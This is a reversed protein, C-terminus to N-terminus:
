KSGSYVLRQKEVLKGLQHQGKKEIQLSKGTSCCGASEVTIAMGSFCLNIHLCMLVCFLFHIQTSISLVRTYLLTNLFHPCNFFTCATKHLDMYELKTKTKNKKRRSSSNVFTFSFMRSPNFTTEECFMYM